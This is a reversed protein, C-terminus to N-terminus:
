GYGLSKRAGYFAKAIDAQPITGGYQKYLAPLIVNESYGKPRIMFGNLSNYIDSNLSEQPSPAKPQNYASANIQAVQRANAAAQDSLRQQFAKNADNTLQDAVYGSKLGAYKSTIASLATNYNSTALQRQTAVDAHKNAQETTIGGLSKLYDATQRNNDNTQLSSSNGELANTYNFDSKAAADNKATTLTDKANNYFPDISRDTSDLSANTSDLTGKATASEAAAQPDYVANATSAYDAATPM